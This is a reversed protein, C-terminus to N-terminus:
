SRAPWAGDPLYRADPPLQPMWYVWLARPGEETWAPVLARRYEGRRDRRLGELADVPPLTCAPDPLRIWEGQVRGCADGARGPPVPNRVLRQRGADRVPDPGAELLISDGPIQVAPYGVSLDFMTGAISATRIKTARECFARHNAFGRKLTGYVFLDVVAPM